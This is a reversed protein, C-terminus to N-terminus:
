DIDSKMDKRTVYQSMHEESCFYFSKLHDGEEVAFSHSKMLDLIMGCQNCMVKM